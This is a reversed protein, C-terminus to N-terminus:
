PVDIGGPPTWGMLDLLRHEDPPGHRILCTSTTPSRGSPSRVRTYTSALPSTTYADM